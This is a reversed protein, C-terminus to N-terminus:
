INEVKMMFKSIGEIHSIKSKILLGRFSSDLKVGQEQLMPKVMKYLKRGKRDLDTLICVKEKKNILSSIEEIRERLSVSTKHLAYVKEFGYSKLANVDKKGEVIIAYNKYKEIELKLQPNFKM